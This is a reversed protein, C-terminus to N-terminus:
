GVSAGHVFEGDRVRNAIDEYSLNPIAWHSRTPESVSDGRSCIYTDSSYVSVRVRRVSSFRVALPGTRISKRM